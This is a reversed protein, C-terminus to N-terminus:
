DISSETPGYLNILEATCCALLRKALDAPLAEGGAFVRRLSSQCAALSPEELLVGLLSPVLQLITIGHDAILGTMANTDQHTGPPALVLRAGTWLPVFIEWISADFGLPTKQLLCDGQGIPFHEQMWLLRNCIARHSVMVAKPRGTSGSTYIAYALNDPTVGAELDHEWASTASWAGDDLFIREAACSPLAAAEARRTLLVKPRAEALMLALREAPYGPDLPVYLGGAKLVALLAVLLDLSREVCLGVAIEPEVGRSRLRYVLRNARINLERYSLEGEEAVVAVAEPTLAARAEFLRHLCAPVPPRFEMASDNWEIEVQQREAAALLPLRSMPTRPDTIFSAFLIQLHGELREITTADWLDTSYALSGRLSEALPWIECTLDFKAVGTGVELESLSVGAVEPLKMPADQLVLMVQFLPTHSLDREIGLEDILKEFPVHQHAYAALATERARQLLAEFGPDGSLDARLVLTNVLLGILGETEVLDRGAVPTGLCLDDRGAYRGLLTALGAFLTMFLSTGHRRSLTRVGEASAAPLTFLRRAGRYSRVAPRPRDSPLDLIPPAGALRERWYALQVALAEGAFVRHQWQVYDAYQVPLAPLLPARGRAFAAYGAALERILVGMSWGDSILHHLTLLLIHDAESLRVLSSRLLPGHGLDFPRRAEEGACQHAAAERRALPLAALDVLSRDPRLARVVRQFPMGDRAGFTTRLTEHRAALGDLALALAAPDIVGSLRLAAAINYAATGPDLQELFWLRRQAFGLPLEDVPPQPLLPPLRPATGAGSLEDIVKALGAVTPAAFLRALPLEVAFVPRVRAIVQTAMLSHGGLEFFSDEAGVQEVALVEAFIGALIEETPTRPAILGAGAVQLDRDPEPLAKRDVKGNATRPLADLHVFLTPVMAEPLRDTLLERLQPVLMEASLGLLPNNAWRSWPALPSSRQPVGPLAPALDRRRLLV